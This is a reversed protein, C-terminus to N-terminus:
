KIRATDRPNFLDTPYVDAKLINLRKEKVEDIREV